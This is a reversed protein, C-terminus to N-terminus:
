SFLLIKEPHLVVFIVPVFDFGANDPSAHGHALHYVNQSVFVPPAAADGVEGAVGSHRPRPVPRHAPSCDSRVSACLSKSIVM